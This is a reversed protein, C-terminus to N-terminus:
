GAVSAPYHMSSYHLESEAETNLPVLVEVQFRGDPLHRCAVREGSGFLLRMRSRINELGIGLREHQPVPDSTSDNVVSISLDAAQRRIAIEIKGVGRRRAVGHKIANEVLPQLLVYPVIADLAQEDVQIDTVLRDQFRVRQIDLYLQLFELERELTVLPADEAALTQRLLDGLSCIMKEAAAPDRHVLAAVSHLTNFLFHPQLQMKLFQLEAKVLNTELEAAHREQARLRTYYAVVYGVVAALLYIQIDAESESLVYKHFQQLFPHSQAWPFVKDGLLTKICVDICVATTIGFVHGVVLRFARKRDLPISACLFLVLPTLLFAWMGYFVVNMRVAQFWTIPHGRAILFQHNFWTGLVCFTAWLSLLGIWVRFWNPSGAVSSPSDDWM